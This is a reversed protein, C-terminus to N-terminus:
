PSLEKIAKVSLTLGEATSDIKSYQVEVKKGQIALLQQRIEKTTSLRYMKWDPLEVALSTFPENGIVYVTGQVTGKM